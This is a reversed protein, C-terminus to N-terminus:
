KIFINTSDPKPSFKNFRLKSLTDKTNILTSDNLIKLNYSFLSYQTYDDNLVKGQISITDNKVNYIWWSSKTNMIRDLIVANNYIFEYKNLESFSLMLGNRFFIINLYNQYKSDYKYYYGDLRFDTGIYATKSMTFEVDQAPYNCTYLFLITIFIVLRTKM